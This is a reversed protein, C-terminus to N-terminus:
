TDSRATIYNYFTTYAVDTLYSPYQTKYKEKKKYIRCCTAILTVFSWEAHVGVINDIFNSVTNTIPVSSILSLIHTLNSLTKKGKTMIM